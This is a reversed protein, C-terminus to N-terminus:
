GSRKSQLADHKDQFVSSCFCSSKMPIRLVPAERVDGSSGERSKEPKDHARCTVPGFLLDEESLRSALGQTDRHKQMGSLCFELGWPGLPYRPTEQPNTLHCARGLAGRARREGGAHGEGGQLREETSERWPAELRRVWKREFDAHLVGADIVLCLSCAM